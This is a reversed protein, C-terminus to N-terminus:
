LPGAAHFLTQRALEGSDQVGIDGTVARQGTLVLVGGMAPEAVGEVEDGDAHSTVPAPHHVVRAVRHEGSEVGYQIRERAGHRDLGLEATAIPGQWISACDLKTDPDFRPSTISSRPSM